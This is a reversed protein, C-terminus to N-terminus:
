RSEYKHVRRLTSSWDLHESANRNERRRTYHLKCGGVLLIEIGKQTRELHKKRSVKGCPVYLGSKCMEHRCSGNRESICKQQNGFEGTLSPFRGATVVVSLFYYIPAHFCLYPM